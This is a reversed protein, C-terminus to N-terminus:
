PSKLLNEDDPYDFQDIFTIKPTQELLLSDDDMLNDFELGKM